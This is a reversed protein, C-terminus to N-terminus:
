YRILSRLSNISNLTGIKVEEVENVAQKCLLHLDLPIKGEELAYICNMVEM